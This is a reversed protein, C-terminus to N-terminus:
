PIAILILEETGIITAIVHFVIYLALSITFVESVVRVPKDRFRKTVSPCQRLEEVEDKVSSIDQKNQVNTILTEKMGRLLLKNMPGVKEEYDELEQIIINGEIIEERSDCM